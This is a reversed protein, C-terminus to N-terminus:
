IDLDLQQLASRKSVHWYREVPPIGATNRIFGEWDEIPQSKYNHILEIKSELDIMTSRMTFGHFCSVQNRTDPSIYPIDEYIMVNCDPHNELVKICAKHVLIHDVHAYEGLALPIFIQHYGDLLPILLECLTEITNADLKPNIHKPYDLPDSIQYGRLPSEPMDLFLTQVGVSDMTFKEEEQRLLTVKDTNGLGEKTYNSRSFVTTVLTHPHESPIANEKLLTGGFSIAGDDLHPSIFLRKDKNSIM